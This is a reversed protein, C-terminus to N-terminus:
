EAVGPGDVANLFGDYGRRLLPNRRGEWCRNFATSRANRSRLNDVLVQAELPLDLANFRNYLAVRMYIDDICLTSFQERELPTLEEDSGGRTWVQMLDPNELLLRRFDGFSEYAEDRGTLLTLANQEELAEQNQGIEIALFVIGLMVGISAVIQSTQGLDIKKM